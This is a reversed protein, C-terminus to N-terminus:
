RHRASLPTRSRTQFCNFLSISSRCAWGGCCTPTARIPAYPMLSRSYKSLCLLLHAHGMLTTRTEAPAEALRGNAVLYIGYARHAVSSNPNLEIGRRLEREAVTWNRSMLSAVGLSVHGEALSDDLEIARKAAALAKPFAEEVPPYGFALLAYSEGLGAYAAAYTPDKDIAQQFLVTGERFGEGSAKDFVHLGKVYLAYAEANQTGQKAFKQLQESSLKIRLKEAITHALEQQLPLIDSVKRDYEDGWIHSNDNVNVLETSLLLHDGRQVLRGTLVAKVKLERGVAQPDADRAKYHFVSSRSMVKLHPIQSLSEILSDTIGDSVIQTNQDNANTALPLVAISDIANNPHVAFYVTALLATVILAFGAIKWRGRWWPQRQVVIGTEVFTAAKSSQTELQIRKLDARLEAASQCRIDRDKQLAKNIIHEIGVPVDPNLRVASTPARNLISDLIVGSTDGRFPMMGTCMEYLVAGFSFLDTRADLEKARVQEPSMYAVTGVAAGPSTLHEELTLTSKEAGLVVGGNSLVPTVKALGFDLIKAHGRKTVFINAPKIDRHVIGETHAADLADAIEIGLSLVTDIALPKRGIRHKLTLGDLFEM